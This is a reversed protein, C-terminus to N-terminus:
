RADAPANALLHNSMTTYPHRRTNEGEHIPHERNPHIQM